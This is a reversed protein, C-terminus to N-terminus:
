SGHSTLLHSFDALFISGQIEPLALLPAAGRETTSEGSSGVHAMGALLVQVPGACIAVDVSRRESSLSLKM